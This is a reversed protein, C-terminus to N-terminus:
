VKCVVIPRSDHAKVEGNAEKVDDHAERAGGAMWRCIVRQESHVM